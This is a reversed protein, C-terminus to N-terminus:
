KIFAEPPIKNQKHLETFVFGAREYDWNTEELCKRSWEINMTSQNAMAQIMQLKTNDDPPNTTQATIPQQPQQQQILSSTSPSDIADQYRLQQANQLRQQTNTMPQQVNTNNNASSFSSSGSNFANREQITTSYNIHYMENRICFGGGCPVIVLSRQFSRLPEDDSHSLTSTSATSNLEKFVGTVTLLILQPTFLTLDVAFSQPDHKTATLESLLSVVPLRGCKLFRFRDEAKDKLRILNRNHCFYKNLWVNRKGNQNSHPQPTGNVTLSFIANEHYADLLPQRNDSDYIIFYQELFQRVIDAGNTNILFSANAAPLKNDDEVDFGIAPPLDNEDLKILKPFKKRIESVYLTHNKFRTVFPNGTLKLEILQLRKLSELAAISQIRNEALHLIKLSPLKDVLCKFHDLINIKNNDLNLAVLDPINESIVEIAAVMIMPRFLGCFIDLLDADSHFKELNLAKTTINYRKVMALKMRDKLTSDVKVTPIRQQVKIKMKFGDPMQIRGDCKRLEEAMKYEDVYFVIAKTNSQDDNQWYHPIFMEPRMQDLLAKLLFEKPYKQGFLITVAYWSMGQLLKREKFSQFNNFRKGRPIPSGRRRNQQDYNQQNSKRNSSGEGSASYPNSMAEDDELIFSIKKDSLRSKIVDRRDAKFSVRRNNGFDKRTVQINGGKLTRKTFNNDGRDDHEIYDNNRNNFNSAQNGFRNGGRKPM